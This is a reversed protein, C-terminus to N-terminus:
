DSYKKGQTTLLYGARMYRLTFTSAIKLRHQNFNGRGCFSSIPPAQSYRLDCCRLIASCCFFLFFISFLILFSVLFLLFYSWSNRLKARANELYNSNRPTGNKGMENPLSVDRRAPKADKNHGTYLPLFTPPTHCVNTPAEKRQHRFIPCLRRCRSRNYHLSLVLLRLHLPNNPLFRHSDRSTFHWQATSVRPKITVTRPGM